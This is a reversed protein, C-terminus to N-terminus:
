ITMKTEFDLSKRCSVSTLRACIIVFLDVRGFKSVSGAQAFLKFQNAIDYGIDFVIDITIAITEVGSVNSSVYQSPEL